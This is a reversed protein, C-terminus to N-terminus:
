RASVPLPGLYRLEHAPVLREVVARVKSESLGPDRAVRELLGRDTPAYVSAARLAKAAKVPNAERIEKMALWLQSLLLHKHAGPIQEALMRTGAIRHFEAVERQLLTRNIQVAPHEPSLQEARMLWFLGLDGEGRKTDLIFLQNLAFLDTSDYRLAQLLPGRVGNLTPEAERSRDVSLIGLARADWPRWAVARELVSAPQPQDLPLRAAVALEGVIQSPAPLAGVLALGAAVAWPSVHARLGPLYRSPIPAAAQTTGQEKRRAAVLLVAFALLPGNDSLPSRVLLHVALAALAPNTWRARNADRLLQFLGLAMFAAGMWGFELLFLLPESHPTKPRRSSINEYNSASMRQEELPRWEPYDTEFRGLGMGLPSTAAKALMAQYMVSRGKTSAWPQLGAEGAEQTTFAPASVVRVLEGGLFLSAVVAAPLLRDRHQWVLLGLGVLLALRAATADLYGAMLAAPALMGLWSAASQPPRWALAAVLFVSWLEAAQPRNSFVATAPANSAPLLGFLDLGLLQLVALWASAAIGLFIGHWASELERRFNAALVLVAGASLWLARDALGGLLETWGRDQFLLILLAFLLGLLWALSGQPARLGQRRPWAACVLGLGLLALVGGDLRTDDLIRPGYAFLPALVWAALLARIL